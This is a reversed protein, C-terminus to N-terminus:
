CGSALRRFVESIVTNYRYHVSGTLYVTPINPAFKALMDPIKKEIALSQEESHVRNPDSGVPAKVTPCVFIIRNQRSSEYVMNEIDPAFSHSVGSDTMYLISNLFSSDTVVTMNSGCVETMMTELHFQTTMINLQDWDDLKLPEGPSLGFDYRISAIHLRAQETLFEAPHGDEKLKAFLSAATTTKGSCPAGVFNVIMTSVGRLIIGFGRPTPLLSPYDKFLPPRQGCRGSLM